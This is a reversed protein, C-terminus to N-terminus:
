KQGIVKAAGLAILEAVSPTTSLASGADQGLARWEDWPLSGSCTSFNGTDSFLVNYAHRYTTTNVDSANCGFYSFFEDSDSACVNGEFFQEAFVNNDDTVCRRDGASREAIGPYLITNSNCIKHGGLFNKCGGFVVTHPTYRPPTPPHPSPPPPPSPTLKYHLRRAAHRPRAQWKRFNGEDVYFSSGDDHDLAWVGSYGNILM